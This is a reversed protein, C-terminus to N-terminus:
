AADSAENATPIFEEVIPRSAKGSQNVEVANLATSVADPLVSSGDFLLGVGDWRPFRLDSSIPGAYRADEAPHFRVHRFSRKECRQPQAYAGVSLIGGQVDDQDGVRNGTSKFAWQEVEKSSVEVRPLAPAGRALDDAFPLQAFGEPAAKNLLDTGARAEALERLAPVLIDWAKRLAKQAAVAAKANAESQAAHRRAFEERADRALAAEHETVLIERRECRLMAEREAKTIEDEIVTRAADDGKIIADRRRSKLKEIAVNGAAIEEDVASIRSSLTASQQKSFIM